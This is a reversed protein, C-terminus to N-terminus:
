GAFQVKLRWARWGYTQGPASGNFDTHGPYRYLYTSDRLAPTWGALKRYHEEVDYNGDGSGIDYVHGGHIHWPHSDYGPNAADPENLLIIDLVEGPRAVYVNLIPDWGGHKTVAWDYNPIVAQGHKYVDVLYPTGVTEIDDTYTTNWLEMDEETWTHNNITWWFEKNKKTQVNSLFVRRSVENNAPFGNPTSPELTYELWSTIDTPVALPPKTPRAEPITKDSKGVLKYNYQLIAYYTVETPRDATQLQIWFWTRGLKELEAPSKTNLLFDFRQGPGAQIHDTKAPKTSTGDASIVTLQKHNQFSFLVLSL